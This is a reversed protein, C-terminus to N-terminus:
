KNTNTHIHTHAQTHTHYYIYAFVSLKFSDTGEKCWTLGSISSPNDATTALKRLGTHWSTKLNM